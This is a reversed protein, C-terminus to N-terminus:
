DKLEGIVVVSLGITYLLMLAVIPTSSEEKSWELFYILCFCISSFIPASLGIKIKMPLGLRYALLFVIIGIVSGIPGTCIITVMEYLALIISLLAFGLQALMVRTLIQNRKRSLQEKESFIDDLLEEM